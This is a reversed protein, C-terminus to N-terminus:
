ERAVLTLLAQAPLNMSAKGGEVAVPAAEKFDDRESTRIVQFQKIGAPLGTITAPRAPGLNVLHLAWTAKGNDKGRFATFLVGERSSTTALADAAPPTLNCFHKMMWFRKTPEYREGQRRLLAYDNTFEWPLATRPRAHLLIEMHHQMEQLVFIYNQLVESYKHAGADPGVEAVLLPRKSEDAVRAWAEYQAPTAGGWSHVSVAGVYRLASPDALTPTTYTDTGRPNTVDGLLMRTKLGLGEFHAGISKIADRHTVPTFFVNVGYDPENFSFLTPEVGYKERAYLFYSGLCHLLDDWREPAVIRHGANQGPHAGPDSYLWEPLRWISSIYPINRRQLTQAMLLQQRLKSGPRDAAAALRAWDADSAPRADPKPAWLDLSIETRAWASHLTALTISTVPSDVGFCYNGGFGDFRYAVRAADVALSVPSADADAHASLQLTISSSEDRKLPGHHFSTMAEFRDTNWVRADQVNLDRTQALALSITQRGAADRIAIRDAKGGSLHQQAGKPPKALPLAIRHAPENPATLTCEGGAFLRASWAVSVFVGELDLDADATVILQLTATGAASETLVQRYRCTQDRGVRLRSEWTKVGDGQTFRASREILSNDMSYTKKWGPSPLLIGASLPIIGNGDNWASIRGGLTAMVTDTARAARPAALTLLAAALILALTLPRAAPRTNSSIM